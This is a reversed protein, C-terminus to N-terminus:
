DKISLPSIDFINNETEDCSDCLPSIYSVPFDSAGPDDCQEVIVEGGSLIGSDPLQERIYEPIEDGYRELCTEGDNIPPITTTFTYTRESPGCIVDIDEVQCNTIEWSGECDNHCLLGDNCVRTMTTGENEPCENGNNESNVLISYNRSQIGSGSGDDTCGVSCEGWEGWQGVCDVEPDTELTCDASCFTKLDGRQCCNDESKCDYCSKIYYATIIFVIFAIFGFFIYINNDTQEVSRYM